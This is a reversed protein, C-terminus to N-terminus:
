MPLFGVANRKKVLDVHVETRSFNLIIKQIELM